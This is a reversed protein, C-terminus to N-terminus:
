EYRGLIEDLQEPLVNGYIDEDILLVPGVGCTGLCSTTILTWRGDPSTEGPHLELQEQLAQFLVRGGMVHCPASECFRIVHRGVPKTSFMQYFTAMGYLQSESIFGHQALGGDPLNLQYKIEKFAASPIYGYAQNVEALIPILADRSKGHQEIALKITSKLDNENIKTEMSIDKDKM